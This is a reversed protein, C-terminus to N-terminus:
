LHNWWSMGHHHLQEKAIAGWRPGYIGWTTSVDLEAWAADKGKRCSDLHSHCSSVPFGVWFFVTLFWSTWLVDSSSLYIDFVVSFILFYSHIRLIPSVSRYFIFLVARYSVYIYVHVCWINIIHTELIIEMFVNSLFLLFVNFALMHDLQYLEAPRLTRGLCWIWHVHQAECAFVQRLLMAQHGEHDRFQNKNFWRVMSVKMNLWTKDLMKQFLKQRLLLGTESFALFGSFSCLGKQSFMNEDNWDM